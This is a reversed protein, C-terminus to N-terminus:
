ALRLRLANSSDARPFNDFSSLLPLQSLSLLRARPCGTGCTLVNL